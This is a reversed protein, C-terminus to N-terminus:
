RRATGSPTTTTTRTTRAALHDQLGRQRDLQLGALRQLMNLTVEAYGHADNGEHDTFNLSRRRQLRHRGLHAHNLNKTELRTTNMTYKTTGGVDDVDLENTWTRSVQAIGGPGSAQSVATHLGNYRQVLAGDHADIFYHMLTPKIGAQLETHFVM